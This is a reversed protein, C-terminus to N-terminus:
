YLQVCIQRGTWVASIRDSLLSAATQCCSSSGVTQSYLLYTYRSLCRRVPPCILCVGALCYTYKFSLNLLEVASSIHEYRISMKRSSSLDPLRVQQASIYIQCVDESQLVYLNPFVTFQKTWIIINKIYIFILLRGTSCIDTPLFRARGTIGSERFFIEWM